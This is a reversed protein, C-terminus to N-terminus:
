PHPRIAQRSDIRPAHAARDRAPAHRIRRDGLGKGVGKLFSPVGADITATGVVRTKGAEILVSGEAAPVFDPTIKIPRLDDPSRDETRLPTERHSDAAERLWFIDSGRAFRCDTQRRIGM